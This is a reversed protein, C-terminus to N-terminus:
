VSKPQTMLKPSTKTMDRAVPGNLAFRLFRIGIVVAGLGISGMVIAGAVDPWFSGEPRGIERYMGVADVTPWFSGIVAISGLIVAMPRKHMYSLRLLSSTRRFILSVLLTDFHNEVGTYDAVSVSVPGTSWM